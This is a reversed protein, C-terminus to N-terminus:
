ARRFLGRDVILFIVLAIVLAILLVVAASASISLVGEAALVTLLIYVFATLGLFSFVSGASM